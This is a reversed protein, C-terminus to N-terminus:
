VLPWLNKFVERQDHAMLADHIEVLYFPKNRTNIMVLYDGIIWTTSLFNAAEGWFKINRKTTINERVKSGFEVESEARNSLLKLDVTEPFQKWYWEIWDGFQEVFTHDQFGWWTLEGSALINKDWKSTESYLFDKVKSEEIFRVIPVPYTKGASIKSLENALQKFSEEREKVREHDKKILALVQEPTAPTFVKPRRTADETLLGKEVLSQAVSYATTRKLGAAKALAAPEIAGGSLVAKYVAVESENLDLAEPLKLDM